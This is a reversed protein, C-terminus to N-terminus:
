GPMVPKLRRDRHMVLWEANEALSERGLALCLSQIERIIHDPHGHPPQSGGPDPPPSTTAAALDRLHQDIRIDAAQFLSGMADYRRLNEDFFRLTAWLHVLGGGGLCLNRLISLCRLPSPPWGLGPPILFAAATGLV